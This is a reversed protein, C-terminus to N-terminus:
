AECGPVGIVRAPGQFRFSRISTRPVRSLPNPLRAGCHGRASAAGWGRVLVLCLCRGPAQPVGGRGRWNEFGYTSHLPVRGEWLDCRRCTVLTRYSTVFGGRGENRGNEQLEDCIVVAGTERRMEAMRQCIASAGGKGERSSKPPCSM